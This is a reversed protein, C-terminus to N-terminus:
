ITSRLHAIGALVAFSTAEIRKPCIKAMLVTIPLVVLCQKFADAVSGSFMILALDPLGWKLNLRFVLIFSLPQMLINIVADIIIMSRYEFECFWISYIQTGILLAAFGLVTLMSYTFMSINLIDMFFYYEFSNFSPVLFGTLLIFININRFERLKFAEGVEKLNHKLDAWFGPGEAAGDTPEIQEVAVPMRIASIFLVLGFGAAVLFCHRPEYGDTLYAATISGGLGGIALAMWNFSQLEEAGRETDKRATTVM